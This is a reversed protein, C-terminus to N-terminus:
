GKDGDATPSCPGSKQKRNKKKGVSGDEEQSEKWV